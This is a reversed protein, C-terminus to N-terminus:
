FSVCSPKCLRSTRLVDFSDDELIGKELKVVRVVVVIDVSDIDSIM